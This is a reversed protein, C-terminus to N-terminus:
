IRGTQALPLFRRRDCRSPHWPALIGARREAVRGPDSITAQEAVAGIWIRPSPAATIWYDLQRTSYATWETLNRSFSVYGIAPNNWLFGYGLSSVAFPVSAQSNRQALELLCGKHDLFGHQYGGMGFIKEDPQSEFRLTLTYDGGVQPTFTRPHIKLASNFYSVAQQDIQGGGALMDGLRVRIYEALLLDGAANYYSIQGRADIQALINGNRISASKQGDTIHIDATGAPREVDLAWHERDFDAHM